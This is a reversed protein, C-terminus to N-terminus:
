IYIFDNDQLQAATVGDVRITGTWGGTDTYTIMAYGAGDAITLDSREDIGAIASFDIKEAGNDAFDFIRDNGWDADFVFQDREAWGSAGNSGGRLYDNGQGGDLVDGAATNNNDGFLRDNGSGGTLTDQGNRGYLTLDVTAGSGDFTDDNLNGYAIEVHSAAMDITVGTTASVLQQVIVRDLDGAGGDIVTDNEDVFLRDLGGGGRLEDADSHGYLYDDGSGGTLVDNGSLGRLTLDASSGTGDFIDNGTNGIAIEIGTAGVANTVANGNVVILRDIGIGGLVQTDLSDTYLWDDGAGGLLRDAGSLGRLIDNGGNGSLVNVGPNGVLTDNHNSGTLNEISALTDGAAHGGAAIGYQLQVNVGATSGAYSATDAGGGGD